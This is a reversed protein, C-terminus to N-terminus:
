RREIHEQRGPLSAPAMADIRGSAADVDHRPDSISIYKPEAPRVVAVRCRTLRTAEFISATGPHVVRTRVAQHRPPAHLEEGRRSWEPTTSTFNTSLDPDPFKLPIRLHKNIAKMEDLNIRLCVSRPASTRAPRCGSRTSSMTPTSTKWELVHGDGSLQGGSRRRTARPNWELALGPSQSM